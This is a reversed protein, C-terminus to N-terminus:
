AQAEAEKLSSLEALFAHVKYERAETDQVKVFGTRIAKKSLPVILKRPASTLSNGSFQNVQRLRTASIKYALCIGQLTDSPLVIHELYDVGALGLTREAESSDITSSSLTRHIKFPISLTTHSSNEDLSNLSRVSGTKTVVIAGGVSSVSIQAESLLDWDEDDLKAESSIPFGDVVVRKGELSGPARPPRESYGKGGDPILRWQLTKEDQEWEM